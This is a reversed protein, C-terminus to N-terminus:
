RGRRQGVAPALLLSLLYGAAFGGIHAWWAVGGETAGFNAIGSVVQLGIWILLYIVAPIEATTVFFGLFVLTLIRSQPFFRLYAALVGAIAGSAGLSPLASHPNFFAHAFSALVGCLLYFALFRGHGFRDEVNDGFIYLFLMNSGLHLWGGHLFMNTLFPLVATPQGSWLRPLEETPTVAFTQLFGQLSAPSLTAMFLFVVVNVAILTYCVVPTRSHPIDDRLPLM